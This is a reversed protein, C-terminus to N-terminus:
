KATAEAVSLEGSMLKPLLTDRLTALRASETNNAQIQLFMPKVSEEFSALADDNPLIIELANLVATPMAIIGEVLGDEIIKKRIEGEGGSQSSLSGNALVLGIKGNPSLHHIM